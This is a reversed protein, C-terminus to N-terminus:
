PAPRTSPPTQLPKRYLVAGKAVGVREFGFSEYLRQAGLNAETTDLTLAPYGARAATAEAHELLRRAVGRRRFSPDTALADVYYTGPEAAPSGRRGRAYLVALRPLFRAPTYRAAVRLFARSRPATEDSAFAAIVGAPRGGLSAVRIVERSASTSHRGFADRIAHVARARGGVYGDFAEAGSAYILSAIEGLAEDRPEVVDVTV